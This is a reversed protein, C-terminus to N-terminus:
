DELDDDEDDEGQGTVADLFELLIPDFLDPRELSPFHATEELVVAFANEFEESLDEHLAVINACDLEGVALLVPATITHVADFAAEPMEEEDLPPHNLVIENMELFLERAPGEVRGAEGYPGDLWQHAQIRNATGINGREIAYDAAEELQEVEEDAEYGEAGTIATGMLVLAVTREPHELAFDVALGGGMSSGVFIAAHVSLQDLVTELDVLHNFPVNEATTEGHGRRDYSIVHYGEEALLQMQGAWMRRDAVGAHLFVVPLGFGDSEGRIIAGDFAIEFPTTM